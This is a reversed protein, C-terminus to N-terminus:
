AQANRGSVSLEFTIGRDQMYLLLAYIYFSVGYLELSEEIVVFFVWVARDYVLVLYHTLAEIGLSGGFFFAAAVLFFKATRREMSRAFRALMIVLPVAVLFGVYVWPVEFHPGVHTQSGAILKNFREHVGACEEINMFLTVMALCCWQWRVPSKIKNEHAAITFAFASAVMFCFISYWTPLSSEYDKM